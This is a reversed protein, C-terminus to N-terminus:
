FSMFRFCVIASSATVTAPVRLTPLLLFRTFEHVVQHDDIAIPRGDLVVRFDFQETTLKDAARM